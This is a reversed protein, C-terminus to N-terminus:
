DWVTSQEGCATKLPPGHCMEPLCNARATTRPLIAIVVAGALALLDKGVAVLTAADEVGVQAQETEAKAAVEAVM